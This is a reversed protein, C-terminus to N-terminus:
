SPWRRCQKRHHKPICCYGACSGPVTDVVMSQNYGQTETLDQQVNFCPVPLTARWDLSQGRSISIINTGNNIYLPYLWAECYGLETQEGFDLLDAMFASSEWSIWTSSSTVTAVQAYIINTYRVATMNRLACGSDCPRAPSISGICHLIEKFNGRTLHLLRTLRCLVMISANLHLRAILFM